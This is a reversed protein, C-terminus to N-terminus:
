ESIYQYKCLVSLRKLSKFLMGLFQSVLIEVLLFCLKFADVPM